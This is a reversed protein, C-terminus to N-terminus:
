SNGEKAGFGGFGGNGTYYNYAVAIVLGITLITCIPVLPDFTSVAAILFFTLSTDWLRAPRPLIHYTHWEDLSVMAMAAAWGFMIISRSGLFKPLFEPTQAQGSGGPMRLFLNVTRSGPKPLSEDGGIPVDRTNYTEYFRQRGTSVQGSPNIVASPEIAGESM